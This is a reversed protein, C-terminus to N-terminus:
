LCPRGGKRLVRNKSVGISACDARGVHRRSFMGLAQFPPHLFPHLPSARLCPHPVSHSARRKRSARRDERRPGCPARRRLRHLPVRGPHPPEDGRGRLPRFARGRERRQTRPCLAAFEPTVVNAARVGQLRTPPWPWASARAACSCAARPEIGAAVDRAVLAAYTPITWASTPIPVSIPWRSPRTDRLYDVLQQRRSSVRMTAQSASTRMALRGEGEATDKSEAAERDRRM